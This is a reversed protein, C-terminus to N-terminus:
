AVFKDLWTASVLDLFASCTVADFRSADIEALGGALDAIERDGVTAGDLLAHDRDILM